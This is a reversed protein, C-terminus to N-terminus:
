GRVMSSFYKKEGQRFFVLERLLVPPIIVLRSDLHLGRKNLLSYATVFSLNWRSEIFDAAVM